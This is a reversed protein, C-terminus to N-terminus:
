MSWKSRPQKIGYEGLMSKWSECYYDDKVKKHSMGCLLGMRPNELAISCSDCNKGLLLRKAEKDETNKVTKLNGFGVSKML